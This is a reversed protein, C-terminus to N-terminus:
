AAPSGDAKEVTFQDDPHNIALANCRRDAAGIDTYEAAGERVSFVPRKNTAGAYFKGDNRKVVWTMRSVM